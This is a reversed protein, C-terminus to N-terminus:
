WQPVTLTKGALWKCGIGLGKCLNSKLKNHKSHFSLFLKVRCNVSNLFDAHAIIKM